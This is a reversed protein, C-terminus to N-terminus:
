KKKKSRRRKTSKVKKNMLYAFAEKENFIKYYLDCSIILNYKKSNNSLTKRGL